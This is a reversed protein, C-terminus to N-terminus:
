AKAELYTILADRAPCDALEVVPTAGPTHVMIATSGDPQLLLSVCPTEARQSATLCLGEDRSLRAAQPRSGILTLLAPHAPDDQATVCVEYSASSCTALPEQEAQSASPWALLALASPLTVGRM